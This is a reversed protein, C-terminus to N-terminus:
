VDAWFLRDGGRLVGQCQGTETFESSQIKLEREKMSHSSDSDKKGEQDKREIIRQGTKKPIKKRLCQTTQTAPQNEETRVGTERSLEM